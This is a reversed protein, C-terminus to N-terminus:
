RSCMFSLDYYALVNSLHSKSSHFRSRGPQLNGLTSAAPKKNITRQQMESHSKRQCGVVCWLVVCVVAEEEEPKDEGNTEVERPRLSRVDSVRGGM